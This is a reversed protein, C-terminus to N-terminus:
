KVKDGDYGWKLYVSGWSFGAGFAALIINDGKRLKKEWEWLCLPITGASTNGYREINVMVKEPAIGARTVAADIIRINAQHPVFWDLEDLTLNNREMIDLSVQAMNSVAYKFVVKGEQYVTHENREVTDRSAPYKSGGAKLQLPAYGVGDARLIADIIGLHEETPEIMVAGAADGFLPCTTRDTYNTVSSMKDGAILIIKRYKGTKIFGNCVELGYVFGSCAVEMDFCFANKIGTNEAVISAASPFLHDPTTTAFVVGDVEEPRTNTKELLERVAKTGLVSIGQEEGKLIRREKIGVRTMIWEDSTDVMRSLEENTLIYDPVAATIGTIVANLNTM